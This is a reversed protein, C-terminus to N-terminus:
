RRRSDAPAGLWNALAAAVPELHDDRRIVQEVRGARSLAEGYLEYFPRGSMGDSLGLRGPPVLRLHETKYAAPGLEGVSARAVNALEPFGTLVKSLDGTMAAHYEAM